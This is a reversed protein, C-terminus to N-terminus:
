RNDARQDCEGVILPASCEKSVVRDVYEWFDLKFEPQNRDQEIIREVPSVAALAANVTAESIGSEIAEVRLTELWVPFEPVQASASNGVISLSIFGLYRAILTM